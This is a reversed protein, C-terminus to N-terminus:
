QFLSFNEAIARQRESRDKIGEIEERTMRKGGGQQNLPKTIQFSARRQELQEQQEDVFASSDKEKMQAILDSLGLIKGNKVKLGAERIDAIVARKAAESTFKYGSIEEKLADEFDRQELKEAYDKEAQEAKQKWGALETKMTELDVGDFKKLTEEADTAKQKWNDRDAEMKETAKSIEGESKYTKRFEKNFTDKKDAPIEVGADKLMEFIDAM